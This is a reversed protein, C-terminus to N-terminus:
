CSFPDVGGTNSTYQRIFIGCEITQAAIRVMVSDLQQIMGKLNGDEEIISYLAIM